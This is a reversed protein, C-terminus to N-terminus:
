LPTCHCPIIRYLHETVLPACSNSIKIMPPVIIQPRNHNKDTVIHFVTRSGSWTLRTSRHSGHFRPIKNQVRCKPDNYPRQCKPPFLSAAHSHNISNQRLVYQLQLNRTNTSLCSSESTRNRGTLILFRRSSYCWLLATKSDNNTKHTNCCCSSCYQCVTWHNQKSKMRCRASM